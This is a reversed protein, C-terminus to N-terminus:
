GSLVDSRRSRYVPLRWILLMFLLVSYLIPEGLDSRAQWLLHLCALMAAPYVARHLRRWNRKLRRQMKRTSTVALPLMLVWALAGVTIYPREALEELLIGPTWGIYFHSFSALHVTAYFFAFLGLMRRLTMPWRWGWIKRVPSVALTVLLIRLSWEGTLHMISEAPDPGLANTGAAYVLWGFPLLCLLFVVPKLARM